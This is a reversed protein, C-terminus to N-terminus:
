SAMKLSLDKFGLTKGYRQEIKQKLDKRAFFIRSKVTGLPLQMDEAIEQYKYGEFHKIFPYRITDDLETIMGNLEQMLMNTEGQNGIHNPGSNLIYLNDTSDFLVKTKSKKRYNNIFINRMITLLWAKINTGEQFKGQNMLARLFTEQLLDKADDNSKTLNFAFSLLRDRHTNLAPVFSNSKM